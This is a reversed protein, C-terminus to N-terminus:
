CFVLVPPSNWYWKLSFNTGLPGILLIGANIWIIAQCRIPSLGDDSGISTLKGVCIYTVRGWHTLIARQVDGWFVSFSGPWVPWTTPGEVLTECWVTISPSIGGLIVTQLILTVNSHRGDATHRHSVIYQGSYWFVTHYKSVWRRVLRIAM